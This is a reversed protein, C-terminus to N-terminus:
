GACIAGRSRKERPLGSEKRLAAKYGQAKADPPVYTLEEDREAGGIASTSDIEVSTSGAKREAAKKM